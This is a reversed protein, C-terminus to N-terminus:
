ATAPPHALFLGIASSTGKLNEPSMEASGPMQEHIHFLAGNISMEAVHVSGDANSFRRLEAAGFAAKYFEMGALVNRLTLHPAFFTAGTEHSENQMTKM